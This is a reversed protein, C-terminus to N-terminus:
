AQKKRGSSETHLWMRECLCSTIDTGMVRSVSVTALFRQCQSRIRFETEMGWKREREWECVTERERLYLIKQKGPVAAWREGPWGPWTQMGTFAPEKKRKRKGRKKVMASTDQTRWSDESIHHGLITKTNKRKTCTINIESVHNTKLHQLSFCLFSIFTSFRLDDQLKSM